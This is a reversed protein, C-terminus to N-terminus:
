VQPGKTLTYETRRGQHSFTAPALGASSPDREAMAGMVWDGRRLGPDLDYPQAVGSQVVDTCPDPDQGEGPHGSRVTSM